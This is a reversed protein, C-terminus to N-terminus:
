VKFPLWIAILSMLRSPEIPELVYRNRKNEKQIAINDHLTRMVVKSGEVGATAHPLSVGLGRKWGMFLPNKKASRAPNTHNIYPLLDSETTYITIDYNVM